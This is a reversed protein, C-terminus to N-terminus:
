IILLLRAVLKVTVHIVLSPHIYYCSYITSLMSKMSLLIDFSNLFYYARISIFKRLKIVTNKGAFIDSELSIKRIATAANLEKM